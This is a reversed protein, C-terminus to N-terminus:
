VGPSTPGRGGSRGLVRKIIVERWTEIELAELRFEVEGRLKWVALGEGDGPGNDEEEADEEWSEKALASSSFTVIVAPRTEASLLPFPFALSSRCSRAIDVRM